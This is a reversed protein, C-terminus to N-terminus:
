EFHFEKRKVSIEKDILTSYTILTDRPYLNNNVVLRMATPLYRSSMYGGPVEQLGRSHISQEYIVSAVKRDWSLRELVGTAAPAIRGAEGLSTELELGYAYQAEESTWWKLFTWAADPHETNAFIVSGTSNAMVTHNVSADEQRTGPVLAVDWLGDIEPAGATLNNCFTYPAIVFPAEGTRFYSLQDMTQPVDYKTYYSTLQEFAKIAEGSSFESETGDENYAEGGMQYLMTAYLEISDVTLSPLGFTMNNNNLVPLIEYVDDWTEPIQIGLEEIIDKRYFLLNFSYGDPLAYSRGSYTFPVTSEPHYNNLVTDYDDFQSLDLLAGRYGYDMVTKPALFMTIDPGNDTAVAPILSNTDVLKLDVDINYNSTFQSNIVSRLANAQDRGSTGLWVTLTETTEENVDTTVSNYDHFFSALFAEIHYKAREWFSIKTYSVPMNEPVLEFWDIILPQKQVSLLWESLARINTKFEDFQKPIKGTSKYFTKLQRELDEFQAYGEGAEGTKELLAEKVVSLKDTYDTLQQKLEPILEELKYDRDPDPNSGVHSLITRYLENLENVIIQTQQVVEDLDGMTNEMRITHEGESLYFLWSNNKQEDGLTVIQWGTQYPFAISKCEEFPITDDIYLRRYSTHGPTTEQRVRLALKYFGSTPVEIQWEVWQTGSSWNTGGIANLKTLYPHSPSNDASSRDSIAFLSADSRYDASEAEVYVVEDCTAQRTGYTSIYDKYNLVQNVPTFVFEVIAVNESLVSVQLKNIGAQLTYVNDDKSLKSRINSTIFLDAEVQEARIENGQTDVKKEGDNKWARKLSVTELTQTGFSGNVALAMEIEKAQGKLPLYKVSLTYEGATEVLFSWEASDSENLVVAKEEMNTEDIYMQKDSVNESHVLNDYAAVVISKDNNEPMNTKTETAHVIPSVPLLTSVLAMITLIAIVKKM